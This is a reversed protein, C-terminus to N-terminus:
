GTQLAAPREQVKSFEIDRTEQLYWVCQARHQLKKLIGKSVILAMDAVGGRAEEGEGPNRKGHMGTVGGGSGGMLEM